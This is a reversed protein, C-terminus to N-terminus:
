TFNLFNFVNITNHKSQELEESRVIYSYTGGSTSGINIDDVTANGWGNVDNTTTSNGASTAFNATNASTASIATSATLAFSATTARSSSIAWSATGFLSGTFGLTSTTSGTVVLSGSIVANGTFPFPAGGFTIPNGLGDAFETGSGTVQVLRQYTEDIYSGLLSPIAM